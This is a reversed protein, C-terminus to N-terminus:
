AQAPSSDALARWQECEPQGPKRAGFVQLIIKGNADYAELSTVVGNDGPKRVRWLSKIQHAKLHLNFEPDLVNFWDGMWKLNRIQGTHIQVCHDSGVFIMINQENDSAQQLLGPLADAALEEAWQSGALRLGQTRQVGHRKLMAFFHHTDKLESWDQRFAAVDIESDPRAPEAAPKAVVELEPSQEAARFREILPQWQALESKDTLFIKHVAVGQADFMQLSRQTGRATEQTVAFVSKWGSLFFRLDIDASVVLGMQGNAAINPKLYIGKREHVCDDNRTLAMVYGLQEVAPLLEKWEPNLRVTDVGVRSAILEGESVGLREAADRARLHPEEALLAQWKHYLPAVLPSDLVTATM